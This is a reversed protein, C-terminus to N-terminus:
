SSVLGLFRKVDDEPTLFSLVLRILTRGNAPPEWEYFIAGAHRLKRVRSDPLRVLVENAEVPEALEADAIAALGTALRQALANAVSRFLM